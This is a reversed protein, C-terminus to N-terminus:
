LVVSFLQGELPEALVLWSCSLMSLTTDCAVDVRWEGGSHYEVFVGVGRGPSRDVLEADTDITARVPPVEDVARPEYYSADSSDCGALALLAAAGGVRFSPM